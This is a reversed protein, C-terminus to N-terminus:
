LSLMLVFSLSCPLIARLVFVLLLFACWCARHIPTYGDKHMDSPNLGTLSLTYSPSMYVYLLPLCFSLIVMTLLCRLSKLSDKFVAHLNERFFCLPEDVTAVLCFCSVLCSLAICFVPCSLVLCSLVLWSLVLCSLVLCSLVLCSMVHCCM